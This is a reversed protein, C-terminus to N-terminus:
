RHGPGCTASTRISSVVLAEHARVMELCISSSGEHLSAAVHCTRGSSINERWPYRHHQATRCAVTAQGTWINRGFAAVSGTSRRKLEVNKDVAAFMWVRVQTHTGKSMKCATEEQDLLDESQDLM